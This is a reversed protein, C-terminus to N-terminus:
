PVALNGTGTETMTATGFREDIEGNLPPHRAMRFNGLSIFIYLM